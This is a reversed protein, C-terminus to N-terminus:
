LGPHPDTRCPFNSHSPLKPSTDKGWPINENWGSLQCFWFAEDVYIKAWGSSGKRHLTRSDWRLMLLGSEALCMKVDEEWKQAASFKNACKIGRPKWLFSVLSPLPPPLFLLAWSVWRSSAGDHQAKKWLTAKWSTDPCRTRILLPGPFRYDKPWRYKRQSSILNAELM